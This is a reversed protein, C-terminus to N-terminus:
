LHIFDLIYLNFDITHAVHNAQRRIFNVMYNQNLYLCAKYKNLISGFETANLNDENIDDVLSM